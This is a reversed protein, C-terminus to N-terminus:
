FVVTNIMTGLCDMVNSNMCEEMTSQLHKQANLKGVSKVVFEQRTMKTEDKIWKNYQETM